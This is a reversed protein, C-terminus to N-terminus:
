KGPLVDLLESGRASYSEGEEVVRDLFIRAKDYEGSKILILAQYWMAQERFELNSHNLLASLKKSANKIKGTEIDCVASYFVSPPYYNNLESYRSFLAGAESYAGMDYFSFAKLLIDGAALSDPLHIIAPYVKYYDNFYDEPGKTTFYFLIFLVLAVLPLIFYVSLPVTNKKLGASIRANIENSASIVELNDGFERIGHYAEWFLDDRMFESHIRKRLEWDAEGSIYKKLEESTM